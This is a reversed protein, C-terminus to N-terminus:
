PGEWPLFQEWPNDSADIAGPAHTRIALLHEAAGGVRLQALRAAQENPLFVAGTTITHYQIMTRGVGLAQAYAAPYKNAQRRWREVVTQFLMSHLYGELNTTTGQLIAGVYHPCTQLVRLRLSGFLGAAAEIAIPDQVLADVTADDGTDHADIIADTWIQIDSMNSM